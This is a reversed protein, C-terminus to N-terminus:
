DVSMLGKCTVLAKKKNSILALEILKITNFGHAPKERLEAGHVIAQYLNEYYFGFSGQLSPYKNRTIEGGIETHLLGYNEESEKGWDPTNPLMGEKLLAEQPDDGYKIFSGKTGHISYHPGHERVLMGAKLIVKHKPYYLDIDFYDDTRSHPRQLRIDASISDPLGFLVLAQDLLHSGLDYLVGSGLKNDERWANPKAGPRYRDYHAEFEVIEGLLKKDLIERITLFDAVYRRNQYVSLVVQKRKALEILVQAENITNTFPKEVVVHKGALIAKEAYPFHTDNPSTIVVVDVNEDAVLEEITRVTKIGPFVQEAENRSRELVAVVEYNKNTRLFPAHMVKAAMGFGALGIRLPNKM